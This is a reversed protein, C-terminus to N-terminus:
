GRDPTGPEVDMGMWENRGLKRSQAMGFAVDSLCYNFAIRNRGTLKAKFVCRDVHALVDTVCDPHDGLVAGGISASLHVSPRDPAQIDIEQVRRRIAEAIDAATGASAGKLLIGFEEGGVRGVIDGPRVSNQITRAMSVLVEDGKAHGFMDNVHKFDDADVLLFVDRAGGRHARELLDLFHERNLVGTMRDHSRAYGMAENAAALQLHAKEMEDHLRALEDYARKLKQSQFFIFSAIPFAVVIPIASVEIMDLTDLPVGIALRGLGLIAFSAIVAVLSTAGASLAIQQAWQKM